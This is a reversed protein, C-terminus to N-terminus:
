RGVLGPCRDALAAALERKALSAVLVKAGCDDVIYEVELPTLRSSITTYYLGARRAAGCVPFYHQNNEMCLAIHDGRRLGLSRLLQAGRNSGEELERYTVSRGSEAMHYAVKDPTKAAHVGPHM